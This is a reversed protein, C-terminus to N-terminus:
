FLDKMSPIKWFPLYENWGLFFSFLIHILPASLFSLIIYLITRRRNMKLCIPPLLITMLMPILYYIWWNLGWGVGYKGFLMGVVVVLLSLLIITYIKQAFQQGRIVIRIIVFFVILSALIMIFFHWTSNTNM